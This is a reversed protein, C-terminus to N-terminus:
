KPRAQPRHSATTTMTMVIIRLVARVATANPPGSGVTQSMLKTTPMVSSTSM